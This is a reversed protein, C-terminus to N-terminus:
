ADGTFLSSVLRQKCIARARLEGENNDLTRTRLTPDRQSLVVRVHQQPLRSCFSLPLFALFIPIKFHRCDNFFGGTFVTTNTSFFWLCYLIKCKYTYFLGCNPPNKCKRLSNCSCFFFLFFLSNKLNAKVM